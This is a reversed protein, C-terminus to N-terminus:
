KTYEDILRDLEKQVVNIIVDQAIGYDFRFQAMKANEIFARLYRITCQITSYKQFEEDSLIANKIQKLRYIETSAGEKYASNNWKNATIRTLDCQADNLHEWIMLQGNREEETM